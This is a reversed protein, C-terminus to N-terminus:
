SLREVLQTMTFGEFGQLMFDSKPLAGEAGLGVVRFGGNLAAEVGSLADEFVVTNAPKVKLADAGKLFVEPDPKSLTISNGDVVADFRDAIGCRELILPANRSSSGLAVGVGAARLEDLFAVIGPFMEGPTMGDVQELYWTNKREMLRVKTDNDLDLNGKRLIYELSDVRSVGKLQDNDAHDFAVGLEEALRQWATFHYKATDVIVGDLDFLCAELQFPM